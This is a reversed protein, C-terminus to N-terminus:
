VYMLLRHKAELCQSLVVHITSESQSLRHCSSAQTDTRGPMCTSLPFAFPCHTPVAGSSHPRPVRAVGAAAHARHRDLGVAGNRVRHADAGAGAEGAGGRAAPDDDRGATRLVDLYQGRSEADLQTSLRAPHTCNRDPLRSRPQESGAPSHGIITRSASYLVCSRLTANLSSALYDRHAFWVALPRVHRAPPRVSYTSGLWLYTIMLFFHRYNGLGVCNAMWQLLHITTNDPYDM